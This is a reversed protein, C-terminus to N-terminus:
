DNDESGEIHLCRAAAVVIATSAQQAEAGTSDEDDNCDAKEFMALYTDNKTIEGKQDSLYLHWGRQRMAPVLDKFVFSYDWEFPMYEMKTGDTLKICLGLEKCLLGELKLVDIPM